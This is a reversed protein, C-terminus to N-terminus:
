FRSIPPIVWHFFSEIGLTSSVTLFKVKYSLQNFFPLLVKRYYLSSHALVHKEWNYITIYLSTDRFYLSLELLQAVQCVNLSRVINIKSHSSSTEIINLIVSTPQTSCHINRGIWFPSLHPTIWHFVSETGPTKTNNTSMFRRAKNTKYHSVCTEIFNLM